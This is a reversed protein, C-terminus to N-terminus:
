RGGGLNRLAERRSLPSLGPHSEAFAEVWDPEHHALDRLAWGIAKRHFFEPSAANAEIVEALLDLDTASGSGLQSLVATRRLWLDEVRAWRRIV